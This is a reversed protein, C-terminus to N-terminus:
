ELDCSDTSDNLDTSNNETSNNTLDTSNNLNMPLKEPDDYSDRSKLQEESKTIRDKVLYGVSFALGIGCFIIGLITWVAAKNGSNTKNGSNEPTETSIEAKELQKEQFDTDIPNKHKPNKHKPNKHIPNKHIPNNHLPNKRFNNNIYNKVPARYDTIASNDATATELTQTLGITLDTTPKTKDTLWIESTKAQTIETSPPLIKKDIPIFEPNPTIKELNQTTSTTTTPTSTTSTTTIKPSKPSTKPPKQPNKLTKVPKPPTKSTTSSTKITTTSTSTSTSTSTPTKTPTKTPTNTPTKTSTTTTSTTKLIDSIEPKQSEPEFIASKHKVPQIKRTKETKDNEVVIEPEIEREIEREIVPVAEPVKETVTKKMKVNYVSDKALKPSKSTEVEVVRSFDPYCDDDGCYSQTEIWNKYKALSVSVGPSGELDCYGWSALGFLRIKTRGSDKVKSKSGSEDKVEEFVPAGFDGPCFRKELINKGFQKGGSDAMTCFAEKKKNKILTLKKKKKKFVQDCQNNNMIKLKQEHAFDPLFAYQSNSHDMGWSVIKLDSKPTPKTSSIEPFDLIGYAQLQVPNVAFVPDRVSKQKLNQVNEPTDDMGDDGHIGLVAVDGYFIEGNKLEKFDQPFVYNHPLVVIKVASAERYEPIEPVDLSYIDTEINKSNKEPDNESGYDSGYDSDYDQNEDAYYNVKMNYDCNTCVRYNEDGTRNQVNITVTVFETKHM